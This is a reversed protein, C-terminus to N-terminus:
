KKGDASEWSLSMWRKDDVGPLRTWYWPYDKRMQALYDVVLDEWRLEPWDTVRIKKARLLFKAKMGIPSRAVNLNAELGRFLCPDAMERIIAARLLMVEDVGNIEIPQRTVSTRAMLYRMENPVFRKAKPKQLIREYFTKVVDLTVDPKGANDYDYTFAERIEGGWGTTPFKAKYSGVPALALHGMAKLADEYIGLLSDAIPDPALYEIIWPYANFPLGEDPHMESLGRVKRLIGRLSREMAASVPVNRPMFDMQIQTLLTLDAFEFNAPPLITVMSFGDVNPGVVPARYATITSRVLDKPYSRIESLDVKQVGIRKSMGSRM